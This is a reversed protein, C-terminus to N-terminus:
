RLFIQTLLRSVEQSSCAWYYRGGTGEALKKYNLDSFFPSSSGDPLRPQGIGICFVKIGKRKALDIVTELKVYANRNDGDGIIVLQSAKPSRNENLVALVAQSLNSGVRPTRWRAVQLSTFMRLSDNANIPAFVPQEDFAFFDFGPFDSQRVFSEIGSVAVQLRDPECDRIRMSTSADLAVVLDHVVLETSRSTSRLARLAQVEEDGSLTFSRDSLPNWYSVSVSKGLDFFGETTFIVEYIFKKSSFYSMQVITDKFVEEILRANFHSTSSLPSALPLTNGRGSITLEYRVPKTAVVRDSIVTDTLQFDGVLNFLIGSTVKEKAPIDTVSIMKRPTTFKAISDPKLPVGIREFESMEFRFEPLVVPKLSGPCVGTRAISYVHYNQGNWSKSIGKVEYVHSPINWSELQEIGELYTTLQQALNRFQLLRTNDERVFFSLDVVACQGVVLHDHSTTMQLFSQTDPLAPQKEVERVAGTKDSIIPNWFQEQALKLNSRQREIEHIRRESQIEVSDALASLMDTILVSKWPLFGVGNKTSAFFSWPAWNLIEVSDGESVLGIPQILDASPFVHWGLSSKPNPLVVTKIGSFDGLRFVVPITYRVDVPKGDKLAPKWRGDCKRVARVAEQDCAEFLGRSVFVSSDNITGNKSVVFSVFVKGEIGRERALPPYIVKGQICEYFKSIGGTYEPSSVSDGPEPVQARTATVGVGM